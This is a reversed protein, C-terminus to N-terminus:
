GNGLRRRILKPNRSTHFVAIVIIAEGHVAYFIRFPFRHLTVARLNKKWVPYRQPQEAIAAFARQVEALFENELRSRQLRYFDIAEALDLEAFARVLLPHSM